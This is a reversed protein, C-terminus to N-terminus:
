FILLEIMNRRNNKKKKKTETEIEQKLNQQFSKILSRFREPSMNHEHAFTTGKYMARQIAYSNSLSELLKEYKVLRNLSNRLMESSNSTASALEDSKLYNNNRNSNIKYRNLANM